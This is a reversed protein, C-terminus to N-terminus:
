DDDDDDDDRRRKAGWSMRKSTRLMWTWHGWPDNALRTMEAVDSDDEGMTALGLEIALRAYKTALWPEGVGNWEMAAYTYAEVQLAHLREQDYLSVLLEAM